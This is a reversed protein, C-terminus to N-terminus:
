CSGSAGLRNRIAVYFDPVLGEKFTLKSSCEWEYSHPLIANRRNTEYQTQKMFEIFLPPSLFNKEGRCRPNTFIEGWRSVTSYAPVFAAVM